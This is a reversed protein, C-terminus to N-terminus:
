TAQSQGFDFGSSAVPKLNGQNDVTQYTEQVYTFSFAWQESPLGGSGPSGSTSYSSIIVNQFQYTEAEFLGGSTNGSSAATSAGTTGSAGTAAGPRSVRIFMVGVPNGSCLYSWLIPTSRDMVKQIYLHGVKSGSSVLGTGTQQSVNTSVCFNMTEIEVKQNWNTNPSKSEGLIGPPQGVSANGGTPGTTASSVLDLYM